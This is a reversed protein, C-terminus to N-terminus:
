RRVPQAAERRRAVGAVLLLGTALMAWTGPEPVALVPSALVVANNIEFRTEGTWLYDNRVASFPTFSYDFERDGSVYYHGNSYIGEPDAGREGATFDLAGGIRYQFIDTGCQYNENSYGACGLYDTGNLFFSSIEDKKIYGDGNIDHGTFSGQLVRDAAFEETFEHQFGSYTFTWTTVAHAGCSAAMLTAFAITKFM